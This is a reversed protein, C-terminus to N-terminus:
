STTLLLKGKTLGAEITRHADASDALTFTRDITVKLKGSLYLNFLDNARMMREDHTSIYDALHPRTFYVSGAEALDLPSVAEVAGSAAGYNVCTGRRRTAKLSDNITAKGISDYVVHVGDGDTADLIFEAFDEDKYLITHDAGNTKALTAKELSGVSAFVEAGRSKALQVLLQGVGGSAAHILCRQGPKLPFLSNSLYHATSGQLMLTTAIDLPIDDPVPILKWIAVSAYDAYSGLETCYAVRDGEKISSAGMNDDISGFSTLIGAGEMGLTMPLKQAYTHSKAYLGNRMYVDIFNVGAIDIKVLAQGDGVEPQPIDDYSLNDANGYEAVRIAKM